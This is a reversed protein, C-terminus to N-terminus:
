IVKVVPCLPHNLDWAYVEVETVPTHLVSWDVQCIAVRSYDDSLKWAAKRANTLTKYRRMGVKDDNFPVEKGNSGLWSNSLRIYYEKM